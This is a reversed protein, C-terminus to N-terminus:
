NHALSPRRTPPHRFGAESGPAGAAPPFRLKAMNLLRRWLIALARSAMSVRARSTQLRSRAESPPQLANLFRTSRIAVERGAANGHMLEPKLRRSERVVCCERQHRQQHHHQPDEPDEITRQGGFPRHRQCPALWPSRRAARWAPLRELIHVVAALHGAPDNAEDREDIRHNSQERVRFPREISDCRGGGPPRLEGSQETVQRQQPKRGQQADDDAWEEAGGM